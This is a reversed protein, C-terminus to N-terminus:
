APGWAYTLLQRQCSTQCCPTRSIPSYFRVFRARNRADTESEVRARAEKEVQAM